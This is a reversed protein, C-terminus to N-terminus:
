GVGEDRDDRGCRHEAAMLGTDKEWAGLPVQFLGHPAKSGSRQDKMDRCPEFSPGLGGARLQAAGEAAGGHAEDSIERGIM